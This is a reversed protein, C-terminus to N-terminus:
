RIKLFALPRVNIWGARGECDYVWLDAFMTRPKTWGSYGGFLALVGASPCATLSANARAPPHGESREHVRQWQWETPATIEGLQRSASALTSASSSGSSSLPLGGRDLEWFDGLAREGLGRALSTYGGFLFARCAPQAPSTYAVVCHDHRKCPSEAAPQATCARVAPALGAVHAAPPPLLWTDSSARM